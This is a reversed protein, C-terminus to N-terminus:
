SRRAQARRARLEYVAPLFLVAALLTAVEGLAALLGFSQVARNLSLSLVVYGLTTTLSCAVVAGGTEVAVRDREAPVTFRYRAVMNLAYDAGVGISIPLAIFNLFNLKIRLVSIALMLWGAGLCLAVLAAWSARSARFLVILLLATGLLSLVIARPADQRISLLMDTLIVPEGSGRLVEGNPLRVERFAEAWRALYHADYVSQGDCPVLFVIRGRTGDRETFPRVIREPLDAITLARLTDPLRQRVRQYDSESVFAHRKARELRDLMEGLLSLKQEQQRPLLDFASVANQFPKGAAPARDRRALLETLLPQVQDVRDAIM